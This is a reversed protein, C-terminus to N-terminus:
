IAACCSLTLAALIFIAAIRAAKRFFVEFVNPEYVTIGGHRNERIEKKKDPHLLLKILAIIIAAACIFTITDM